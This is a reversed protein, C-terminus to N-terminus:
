RGEKYKKLASFKVVYFPNNKYYLLVVHHEREMLLENDNLSTTELFVNLEGTDDVIKAKLYKDKNPILLSSHTYKLSDPIEKIENINELHGKIIYHKGYFNDYDIPEYNKIESVTTDWLEISNYKASNRMNEFRVNLYDEYMNTILLLGIRNRKDESSSTPKVDMRVHYEGIRKTWFLGGEFKGYGKEYYRNFEKLGIELKKNGYLKGVLNFIEPTEKMYFDNFQKDTYERSLWWTVSMSKGNDKALTHIGLTNDNNKLTVISITNDDYYKFDEIYWGFNIDSLVKEVEERELPFEYQQQSNICATLIISIIAINLLLIFSKFKM